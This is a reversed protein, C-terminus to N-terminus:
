RSWRSSFALSRLHVNPIEPALVLPYQPVANVRTHKLVLSHQPKARSLSSHSAKILCARDRCVASATETSTAVPSSHRHLSSSQLPKKPVHSWMVYVQDHHPGTLSGTQKKWREQPCIQANGGVWTCVSLVSWGCGVGVEGEQRQVPHRQFSRDTQVHATDPLVTLLQCYHTGWPFPISAPLSPRCLRKAGCFLPTRM